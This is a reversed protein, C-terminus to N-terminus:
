KVMMKKGNVINIGKQLKNLRVGQLNYIVGDDTRATVDSIGSPSDEFNLELFERASAGSLDLYAKHAALTGGSAKYFGVSSANEGDWSFVYINDGTTPDASSNGTGVLYNTGSMNPTADSAVANITVSGSGALLVGAGASFITGEAQETLKVYSGGNASVTYVTAGDVTYKEGNSWTAYGASGITTTRYPSCSWKMDYVNVSLDFKASINDIFWYQAQDATILTQNTYTQFALSFSSNDVNPRYCVNWSVPTNGENKNFSPVVYYTMTNNPSTRYDISTTYTKGDSTSMLTYTHNSYEYLYMELQSTSVSANTGITFLYPTTCDTVPVTQGYHTQNSGSDHFMVQLKDIYDENISMDKYFVWGSNFEGIYTMNEEDNSWTTPHYNETDNFVHIRLTENWGTVKKLAYFRITVNDAGVNLTTGTLVLLILILRKM